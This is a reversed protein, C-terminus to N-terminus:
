LSCCQLTLDHRGKHLLATKSGAQELITPEKLEINRLQSGFGSGTCHGDPGEVSGRHSEPSLPVSAFVSISISELAMLLVARQRQGQLKTDEAM